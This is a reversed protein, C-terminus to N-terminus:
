GEIDAAFGAIYTKHILFWAALLLCWCVALITDPNELGPVWGFIAIEVAALWCLGAAALTYPWFRALTRGAAGSLVKRWGTLPRNIRTAYAWVVTFFAIHGIGGGVLTLLVCLLLLVAAAHQKRSFWISWAAILLSVTMAAIGTLLFNPILTFAEETGHPWMRQAEGIAQIVWRGTPRSGQLTEFLGHEFGALALLLGLISTITRTAPTESAPTNSL